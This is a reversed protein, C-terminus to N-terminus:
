ENGRGGEIRVFRCDGYGAQGMPNFDIYNRTVLWLRNSANLTLNDPLLSHHVRLEIGREEKLLKWENELYEELRTGWLLQRAEIAELEGSNDEEDQRIRLRFIDGTDMSSKWVYCESDENFVRLLRLYEPQFPLSPPMIFQGKEFSGLCIGHYMTVLAGAKKSNFHEKIKNQLTRWEGMMIQPENQKFRVLQMAKSPM